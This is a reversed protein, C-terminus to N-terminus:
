RDPHRFEVVIPLWVRVPVGQKTAPRYVRARVYRTAADEFGLGRPSARVLSVEIVAGTDDVLANLWVTGSLRRELALPPYRPRTQTVPVPRTLGPDNVDVMAGRPVPSPTPPPEAAPAPVPATTVAADTSVPLDTPLPVDTPAPAAALATVPTPTPAPTPAVIEDARKEVLLTPPRGSARQTAGIPAPAAPRRGPVVQAREQKLQAVVAELETLRKQAALAEQSVTASPSPAPPPAPRPQLRDRSLWGAFAVLLVAPLYVIVPRLGRWGPPRAAPPPHPESPPELELVPAALTAGVSETKTERVPEPSAPSPNRRRRGRRRGAPPYGEDAPPPAEGLPEPAAEAVPPAASAVVPSPTRVIAAPPSPAFPRWGPDLPKGSEVLLTYVHLAISEDAPRYTPERSGSEQHRELDFRWGEAERYFRVWYFGAKDGLAESLVAYWAGKDPPNEGEWKVVM